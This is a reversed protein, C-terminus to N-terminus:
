STLVIEWLSSWELFGVRELLDVNTLKSRKAEVFECAAVFSAPRFGDAQLLDLTRAAEVMGTSKLGGLVTSSVRSLLAADHVRQFWYNSNWFDGELRHVIGHLYSGIPSADNQVISHPREIEGIRLWLMAVALSNPLWESRSLLQNLSASQVPLAVARIPVTPDLEKLWSDALTPPSPTNTM